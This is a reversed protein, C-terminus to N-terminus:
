GDSRSQKSPPLSWVDAPADSGVEADDVGAALRELVAAPSDSPHAMLVPVGRGRVWRMVPTWREVDEAVVIADVKPARRIMQVDLLFGGGGGITSVGLPKLGAVLTPAGVVGIRTM